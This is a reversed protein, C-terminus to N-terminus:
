GRRGHRQGRKRVATLHKLVRLGDSGLLWLTEPAVGGAASAYDRRKFIAAATSFVGRCDDPDRTSLPLLWGGDAEGAPPIIGDPRRVSLLADIMGQVRESIAPPIAVGNRAALVVFHLYTEVTDRLDRTSQEVSAGRDLVPRDIEARLINEALALWRRAPGLDPFVVAAYFLGLAERTRPTDPVVSPALYTEVHSAHAAIGALMEAFLAPSLAKSRLFLLLVWCWSIIRMAVERSSAWNIGVGPPNALMWDRLLRACTEAYREDGTLRYAQGIHVLWQHRNLAWIVNCDGVVGCDLPNLLSWHAL